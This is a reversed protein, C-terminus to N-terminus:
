RMADLAALAEGARRRLYAAAAARRAPDTEWAWEEAYRCVAALDDRLAALFSSPGFVPGAALEHAAPTRGDLGAERALRELRGALLAEPAERRLADAARAIEAANRALCAASVERAGPIARSALATTAHTSLEWGPWANIASEPGPADECVLSALAAADALVGLGRSLGELRGTDAPAGGSILSTEWVARAAGIEDLLAHPQGGTVTAWGGSDLSGLHAAAALELEGPLSAFCATDRAIQRLSTIAADRDSQRTMNRTLALLRDALRRRSESAVAQRSAPSQPSAPGELWRSLGEVAMLDERARSLAGIEALLAPTSAASPDRLLAPLHLSVRASASEAARRLERWAPRLQRVIASEGRPDSPLVCLSLTRSFADLRRREDQPDPPNAALCDWIAAVAADRERARPLAEAQALALSLLTLRSVTHPPPDLLSRTALSRAADEGACVLPQRAPLPVKAPERALLAGAADLAVHWDAAAQALSARGRAERIAARFREVEERAQESLGPAVQWPDRERAPPTSAPIAPIGPATPPAIWGCPAHPAGATDTLPSLVARLFSDLSEADPPPEAAAAAIRSAQLADLDGPDLSAAEEAARLLTLAGVFRPSGPEGAEDAAPLMRAALNRLARAARQPHSDDPLPSPPTHLAAVLDRVRSSGPAPAAPGGLELRQAQASAIGLLVAALRSAAGRSIM